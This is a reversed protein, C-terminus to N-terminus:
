TGPRRYGAAVTKAKALLAQTEEMTILRVTHVKHVAGSSSVGVSIAAVSADDPVDVIAVFDDPGFAWYYTELTAGVDECTKRVVASRDGANDVMRAWSESTYSGAVMYKPM